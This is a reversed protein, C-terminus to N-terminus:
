ILDIAPGNLEVGAEDAIRGFVLLKGVPEIGVQLVLAHAAPKRRVIHMAPPLHMLLDVLGDAQM